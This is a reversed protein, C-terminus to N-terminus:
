ADVEEPSENGNSRDIEPVNLIEELGTCRFGYGRLAVKLLQRLRVIAPLDSTQAHLTVRFDGSNRAKM